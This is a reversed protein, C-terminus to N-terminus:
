LRELHEHFYEKKKRESIHSEYKPRQVVYHM